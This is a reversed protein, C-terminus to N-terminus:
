GYRDNGYRFGENHEEDLLTWVVLGPKTILETIGKAARGLIEDAVMFAKNLSVTSHWRWSSTM